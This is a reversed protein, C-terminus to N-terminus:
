ATRNFSSHPRWDAGAPKRRCEGRYSAQGLYLVSKRRLCYSSDDYSNGKARGIFRTGGIVLVNM